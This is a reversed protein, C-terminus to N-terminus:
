GKLKVKHTKEYEAIVVEFPITKDSEEKAERIAELDEFGAKLLAKVVDKGTVRPLKPM